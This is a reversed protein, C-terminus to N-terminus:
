YPLRLLTYVFSLRLFGGLHSCEVTHILSSHTLLDPRSKFALDQSGILPISTFISHRRFSPLPLPSGRSFGGVLPMKRCSEWKGFHPSGAPSQVRKAMTPPSRVHGWHTILSLPIITFPISPILLRRPPPATTPVEVDLMAYLIAAPRGSHSLTFPERVLDRHGLSRWNVQLGAPAPLTLHRDVAQPVDHFTGRRCINVQRWKAKRLAAFDPAASSALWRLTKYAPSTADLETQCRRHGINGPFVTPLVRWEMSSEMVGWSGSFVRLDTADDPVIELQSFGPSAQGPPLGPEGIHSSRLRVASDGRGTEGRTSVRGIVLPLRPQPRQINFDLMATFIKAFFVQGQPHATVYSQPRRRSVVVIMSTSSVVRQANCQTSPLRLHGVDRLPPPIRSRSLRPYGSFIWRAGAVNEMHGVSRQHPAFRTGLKWPILVDIANEM